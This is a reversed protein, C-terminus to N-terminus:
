KCNLGVEPKKLPLCGPTERRKPATILDTNGTEWTWRKAPSSPSRVDRKQVQNHNSYVLGWHIGCVSAILLLAYRTGNKYGGGALDMCHSPLTRSDQDKQKWVRIRIRRENGLYGTAEM